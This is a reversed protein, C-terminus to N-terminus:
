NKIENIVIINNYVTNVNSEPQKTNFDAFLDLQRDEMEPM